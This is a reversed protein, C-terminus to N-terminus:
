SSGQGTLAQHLSFIRKMPVWKEGPRAFPLILQFQGMLEEWARVKPSAVELTEKDAVTFDDPADIVMVLRNGCRLIELENVNAARLSDLVEPWIREPRHWREYEAILAPDDRLDLAFYLRRM